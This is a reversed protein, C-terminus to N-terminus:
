LPASNGWRLSNKLHLPGELRVVSAALADVAEEFPHPGLITAADDGGTTFLATVAERDSPPKPQQM